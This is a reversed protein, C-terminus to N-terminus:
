QIRPHPSSGLAGGVRYAVRFVTSKFHICYPYGKGIDFVRQDPNAQLGYWYQWHSAEVKKNPKDFFCLYIVTKVSDPLPM